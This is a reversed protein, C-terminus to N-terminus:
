GWEFGSAFWAGTGNLCVNAQPLTMRQLTRGPKLGHASLLDGAEERLVDCVVQQGTCRAAIRRFLEEFDALSDAVLPGVHWATRGPRLAALGATFGNRNLRFVEGSESLDHLLPSRDVGMCRRDFDLADQALGRELREGAGRSGVRGQWRVIPRSCEFGFKRYIVEGMETADLGVQAHGESRALELAEAFAWKGIGRGRYDPDALIM